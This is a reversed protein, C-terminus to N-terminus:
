GNLKLRSFRVNNFRVRDLRINVNNMLENSNSDYLSIRTQDRYETFIYNDSNKIKNNNFKVIHNEADYILISNDEYQIDGSYKCQKNGIRKKLRIM